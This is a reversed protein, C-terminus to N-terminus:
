DKECITRRRAERESGVASRGQAEVSYRFSPCHDEKSPDSLIGMRWSCGRASGRDAIKPNKRLALQSGASLEVLVRRMCTQVKPSHKEIGWEAILLDVYSSNRVKTAGLRTLEGGCETERFFPFHNKISEPWTYSNSSTWEGSGLSRNRFSLNLGPCCNPSKRRPLLQM